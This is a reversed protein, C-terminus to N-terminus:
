LFSQQLREHDCSWKTASTYLSVFHRLIASKILSQSPLSANTKCVAKMRSATVRGAHYKYWLKSNSQDHTSRKVAEAMEKSHCLQLSYALQTTSIEAPSSIASAKPLQAPLLRETGM